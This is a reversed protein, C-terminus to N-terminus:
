QVLSMYFYIIKILYQLLVNKWCFWYSVVLDTNKSLLILGFCVDHLFFFDNMINMNM